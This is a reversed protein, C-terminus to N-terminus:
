KKNKSSNGFYKDFLRGLFTFMAGLFVLVFTGLYATSKNSMQEKKYSVVGNVVRTQTHTGSSFIVSQPNIISYAFFVIGLIILLPGLTKFIKVPNHFISNKNSAMKIILSVLLLIFGLIAMTVILVSNYEFGILRPNQKEVYIDLVAGVSKADLKSLYEPIREYQRDGYSYNLYAIQDTYIYEYTRSNSSTGSKTSGIRDVNIIDVIEASVMDFKSHFDRSNYLSCIIIIFPVTGLFLFIKWIGKTKNKIISFVIINLIIFCTGLAISILGSGVSDLYYNSPDNEDLYLKFYGEETMNSNFFGREEFEYIKGGYYYEFIVIYDYTPSNKRLVSTNEVINIHTVQALIQDYRKKNINSDIILFVGVIIFVIGVFIFFGFLFKKLFIQTNIKKEKM